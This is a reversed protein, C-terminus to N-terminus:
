AFNKLFHGGYITNQNELFLWIHHKFLIPSVVTILNFAITLLVAASVSIAGLVSAILPILVIGIPEDMPVDIYVGFFAFLLVVAWLIVWVLAFILPISAIVFPMIGTVITSTITALSYRAINCLFKIKTM